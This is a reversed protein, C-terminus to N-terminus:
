SLSEILITMNYISINGTGYKLLGLKFGNSQYDHDGNSTSLLRSFLNTSINLFTESSSSHSILNSEYVLSNDTKDVIQPSTLCLQITTNSSLHIHFKLVIMFKIDTNIITNKFKLLSNTNDYIIYDSINNININLNPSPTFLLNTINIFNNNTGNLIYENNYTAEYRFRNQITNLNSQNIDNLVYISNDNKGILLKNTSNNFFLEGFELSQPNNIIDKKIQIKKDSM